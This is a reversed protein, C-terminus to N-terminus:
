VVLYCRYLVSSRGFKRAADMTPWGNEPHPKGRFVAGTQLGFRLTDCSVIITV